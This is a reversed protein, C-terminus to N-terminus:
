FHNNVVFSLTTGPEQIDCSYRITHGDINESISMCQAGKTSMGVIFYGNDADASGVGIELDYDGEWTGKYQNTANCATDTDGTAPYYMELCAGSSTQFNVTLVSRQECGM